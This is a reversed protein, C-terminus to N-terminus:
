LNTWPVSTGATVGLRTLRNKQFASNLRITTNSGRFLASLFRMAIPSYMAMGGSTAKFTISLGDQSISSVDMMTLLEPHDAHYAAQWAVARTLWYFDRKDVDTDRWVRHLLAEIVGQATTVNPQTVTYGTFALVDAVTCWAGRGGAASVTFPQEVTTTVSAVTATWRSPRPM